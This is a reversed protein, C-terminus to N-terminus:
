SGPVDEPADKSVVMCSLVGASGIIVGAVEGVVPVNMGRARRAHTGPSCHIPDQGWRAIYQCVSALVPRGKGPLEADDLSPTLSGSTVVEASCPM